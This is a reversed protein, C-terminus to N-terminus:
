SKRSDMLNKMLSLKYKQAFTLPDDMIEHLMQWERESFTKQSIERIEEAYESLMASIKQCFQNIRNYQIRALAFDIYDAFIRKIYFDKLDNWLGKKTLFDKIFTQEGFFDQEFKEFNNITSAANDRRYFYYAEDVYMIKKALTRTQFWFGNDNYARVSENWKINNEGLFERRYLATWIVCWAFGQLYKESSRDYFDKPFLERDYWEPNTFFRKQTASFQEGTGTFEYYNSIAIDLDHAKARKYLEEYMEPKVYDDSDMEALYEGKAMAIGNNIANGVGGNPQDIIVIRSDRDAYEKIIDLSEDTSGDNVIIIEINELTQNAASEIAQRLYRSSNYVPVVVSVSPTSSINEM